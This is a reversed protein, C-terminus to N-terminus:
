ITSVQKFNKNSTEIKTHGIPLMTIIKQDAGSFTRHIVCALHAFNLKHFGVLWYSYKGM